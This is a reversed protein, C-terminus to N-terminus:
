RAGPAVMIAGAGASLTRGVRFGLNNNRNDTNNRNRNSSRLNDPNNNWSGGRVVRRPATWAELAKAPDFRGGRFIAHRLRWTDAHEAHAIWAGIRAAVDEIDICGAQWQDRLGRLRNRFRRVNDEPLRRLGDNHLVFGLFQAPEHCPSIFTKRPHLKLRRGVFYQEIQLRWNLLADPDDAFLAFDDVYRVYPAQLIETV